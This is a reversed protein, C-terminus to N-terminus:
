LNCGLGEALVRCLGVLCGEHEEGRSERLEGGEDECAGSGSGVACITHCWCLEM